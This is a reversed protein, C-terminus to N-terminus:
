AAPRLNAMQSLFLGRGMGMPAHSLDAIFGSYHLENSFANRYTILGVVSPDLYPSELGSLVSSVDSGYLKAVVYSTKAENLSIARHSIAHAHDGAKASLIMSELQQTARGALPVVDLRILIGVAPSNGHNALIMEVQFRTDDGDPQLNSHLFAEVALWPRQGVVLAKESAEAARMAAKSSEQAEVVAKRTEALTQAVLWVGVVTFLLGISALWVTRETWRAMEWQADLDSEERWEKRDPYPHAPPLESTAIRLAPYTERVNDNPAYYGAAFLMALVTLLVGGPTYRMWDRDIM